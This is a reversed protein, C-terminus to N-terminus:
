EGELFMMMFGRMHPFAATEEESHESKSEMWDMHEKSGQLVLNNIVAPPPMFERVGSCVGEFNPLSDMPDTEFDRRLSIALFARHLPFELVPAEHTPLPFAPPVPFVKQPWWLPRGLLRKKLPSQPIESGLPEEPFRCETSSPGLDLSEELGPDGTLIWCFAWLCRWPDSSTRAHSDRAPTAERLEENWEVLRVAIGQVERADLTWWRLAEKGDEGIWLCSVDRWDERAFQGFCPWKRAAGLLVEWPLLNKIKWTFHRGTPM